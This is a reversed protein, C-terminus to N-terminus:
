PRAPLNHRKRFDRDFDNIPVGRDGSAVDDLAEQLAALDEECDQARPHLRRFEDLADEPSWQVGGNTLRDSLFRHFERLEEVVQDAMTQEKWIVSM